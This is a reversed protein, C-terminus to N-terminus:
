AGLESQAYPSLTHLSSEGMLLMFIRDLGFSIGSCDPFDGSDLVQLFDGDLPFVEKGLQERLRQEAVFRKRQEKPDRLEWFANALEIRNWYIEFRKARGEIVRSLAACEEPYDYLFVIGPDLNPEIKNLFVLFFLDEYPWSDLDVLPSNTLSHQTITQVLERKQFGRGTHQLFLDEVKWERYYPETQLDAFIPLSRALTEMQSTQFMHGLHQFYQKCFHRLKIDDWSRAYLELMLFEPSHIPSGEEGSRFTHTIEYIRDLGTSLAQKLSYEPSTILYGKEKRSPSAVQFPDLYPEMGVVPKYIPTDVELFGHDKLFSRTTDLFKSRLILTEKKLSKM